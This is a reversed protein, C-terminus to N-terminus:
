GRKVDKSRVAALLHQSVEEQKGEVDVTILQAQQQYYDILPETQRQYVRLRERVAEPRDDSRIYIEGGCTPCPDGVDINDRHLNFITGCNRCMRRGSLRRVVEAESIVMNVALPSPMQLEDVIASLAEAQAITRPFGDLLWGVPCDRKGLREKALEIVLEDPVLQGAKMYEQAKNGLATGEAVAERLMDGTSIHVVGLERELYQAHTGKGAGPPGLLILNTSAM